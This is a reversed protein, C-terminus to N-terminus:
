KQRHLIGHRPLPLLDKLNWSQSKGAVTSSHVVLEPNFEALAQRCAGCPVIPMESDSLLVIASFQRDGDSVARGLAVREACMTLGLSINEVNVGAYFSGAESVLCASVRFGSYPSYARTIVNQAVKNCQEVQKESIRM